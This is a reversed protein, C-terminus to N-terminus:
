EGTYEQEEEGDNTKRRYEWSSCEETWCVTPLATMYYELGPINKYEHDTAYLDVYYPSVLRM